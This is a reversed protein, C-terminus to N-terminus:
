QGNRHIKYLDDATSFISELSITAKDCEDFIEKIERPIVKRKIENEVSHRIEKPIANRIEKPIAKKVEKEAKKFLKKLLGM